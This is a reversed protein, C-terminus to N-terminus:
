AGNDRRGAGEAKVKQDEETDSNAVVHTKDAKRFARKAKKLSFGCLIAVVLRGGRSKWKETELRV